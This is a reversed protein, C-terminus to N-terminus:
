CLAIDSAEARLRDGSYHNGVIAALATTFNDAGPSLRRATAPVSQSLGVNYKKSENIAIHWSENIDRWHFKNQMPQKQANEPPPSCKTAPAGQTSNLRLYECSLPVMERENAMHRIFLRCSAENKNRSSPLATAGHHKIFIKM